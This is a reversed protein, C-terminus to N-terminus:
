VETERGEVELGGGGECYGGYGYRCDGAGLLGVGEQLGAHAVGEPEDGTQRRGGERDFVWEM